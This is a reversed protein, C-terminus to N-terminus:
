CAWDAADPPLGSPDFGKGDDRVELSLGDRTSQVAIEIASCCAHQVANDVAEQAIQYLVPAVKPDLQLEPDITVRVEGAFREAVRERLRNLASRLGAREVDSPNLEYAYERVNQMVAELIKQIDAVRAYVEPSILETDMRVLDLQLGLATLNQGVTDHLFRAAKKREFEHAHLAGLVTRRLEQEARSWSAAEHALAGAYRIQDDIRVPFVSIHWALDGCRERLTVTEGQLARAFRLNWTEALDRSLADAVPRGNLEAAPKGFIKTSDGYVHAFRADAGVMWQCAPGQGLLTGALRGDDQM